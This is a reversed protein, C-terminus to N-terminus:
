VNQPEGAIATMRFSYSISSVFYMKGADSITLINTMLMPNIYKGLIKIILLAFQPVRCKAWIVFTLSNTRSGYHWSLKWALRLARIKFSRHASTSSFSVRICNWVVMDHTQLAFINGDTNAIWKFPSCAM